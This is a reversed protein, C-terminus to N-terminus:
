IYKKKEPIYTLIKKFVSIVHGATPALSIELILALFKMGIVM